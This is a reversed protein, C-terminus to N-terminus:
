QNPDLQMISYSTGGNNTSLVFTDIKGAIGSLTFSAGNTVSTPWTIKSNPGGNIVEVTFTGTTGSAPPNSFSVVTTVNDAVPLVFTLGAVKQTLPSLDMTVSAGGALEVIPSPTVADNEMIKVPAYPQESDSIPEEPRIPTRPMVWSGAQYPVTKPPPFAPADNPDVCYGGDGPIITQYARSQYESDFYPVNRVLYPTKVSPDNVYLNVRFLSSIGVVMASLPTIAQIANLDALQGGRKPYFLVAQNDSPAAM